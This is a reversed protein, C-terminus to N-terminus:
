PIVTSPSAQVPQRIGRSRLVANRGPNWHRWEVNLTMTDGGQAVYHLLHLTEKKAKPRQASKRDAPSAYGSHWKWYVFVTERSGKGVVFWSM